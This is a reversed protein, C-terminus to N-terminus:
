AEALYHAREDQTRHALRRQANRNLMDARSERADFRLYLVSERAAKLRLAFARLEQWTPRDAIFDRLTMGQAKENWPSHEIHGSPTVWIAFLSGDPATLLTEPTNEQMKAAEDLEDWAARNAAHLREWLGATLRQYLARRQAYRRPTEPGGLGSRYTRTFELAAQDIALERGDRETVPRPTSRERDCRRARPVRAEAEANFLEEPTRRTNM